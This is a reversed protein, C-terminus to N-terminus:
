YVSTKPDSKCTTPVTIMIHGPVTAALSGGARDHPVKVGGAAARLRGALRADRCSTPARAGAAARAAHGTGAPPSGRDRDLRDSAQILTGTVVTVSGAHRAGHWHGRATLRPPTQAAHGDSDSDDTIVGSRGNLNSDSPVVPSARRGPVQLWGGEPEGTRRLHGSDVVKM